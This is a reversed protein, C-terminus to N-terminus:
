DLSVRNDGNVIEIQIEHSYEDNDYHKLETFIEILKSAYDGFKREIVELGIIEIHIPDGIMDRLCDWLADLNCGYYDPFDLEKWIVAHIELFHDVNSFDLTYLEKFEYV